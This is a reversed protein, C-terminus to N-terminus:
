ASLIKAPERDGSPEVTPLPQSVRIVPRSAPEVKAGNLVAGGWCIKWGTSTKVFEYM